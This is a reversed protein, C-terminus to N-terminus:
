QSTITVTINELDDLNIKGLNVKGHLDSHYKKKYKSITVIKNQYKGKDDSILYLYTNLNDKDKIVRVLIDQYKNILSGIYLYKSRKNHVPTAIEAVHVGFSKNLIPIVPLMPYAIITKDANVNIKNIFEELKSSVGVKLLKSLNIDFFEADILQRSCFDCTLFHNQWNLPISINEKIRPIIQDIEIETLHSM